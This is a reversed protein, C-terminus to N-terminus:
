PKNSSLRDALETLIAAQGSIIKTKALEINFWEVRDIEVFEQIKGSKPPWEMPFTNSILDDPNFDGEIAWALVEKGSKQTVPSLEIMEGSVNAGLEEKFERIAADKPNEDGAFEGKPISWVGLDKNKNFPGGPHALLVELDSNNCRYMLIGASRKRM